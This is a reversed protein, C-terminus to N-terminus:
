SRDRALIQLARIFQQGLEDGLPALFEREVADRAAAARQLCDAGRETLVVMNRRRDQPSRHRGVLRKAELTDVLAVMTTRDIGLQEAAEQQSLPVLAGLVTLVALERGDIGFPAMAPGAARLLQQQAHKLLYGLRTALVDPLEDTM